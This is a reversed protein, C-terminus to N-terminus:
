HLDPKVFHLQPHPKEDAEFVIPYEEVSATEINDNYIDDTKPRLKANIKPLKFSNQLAEDDSSHIQLSQKDENQQYLQKPYIPPLQVVNSSLPQQQLVFAAPVM